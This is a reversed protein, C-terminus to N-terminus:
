ALIIKVDLCGLVFGFLYNESKNYDNSHNSGKRLRSLPHADNLM